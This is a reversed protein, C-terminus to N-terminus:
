ASLKLPVRNGSAFMTEATMRTDHKQVVGNFYERVPYLPYPELEAFVQGLKREIRYVAHFFDGREMKLQRCCLRWDAGLLHHYRFIRYEFDDLARRSVLCFDAMYEERKLSYTRRGEQGRCFELRVAGVHGSSLACKRFKSWCVRFVARLVCNCPAESGNRRFRTGNGHCFTCSVKAIGITSSRDWQML